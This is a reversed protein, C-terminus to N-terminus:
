WVSAHKVSTPGHTGMSSSRKWSRTAVNPSIVTHVAPWMSMTATAIVPNLSVYQRGLSFYFTFCMHLYVCVAQLVSVPLLVHLFIFVYQRGSQFLLPFMYSFLCMHQRFSQLLFSIPPSVYLFVPVYQRRVFSFYSTFRMPFYRMTGLPCFHSLFIM